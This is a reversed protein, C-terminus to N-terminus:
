YMSTKLVVLFIRDWTEMSNLCDFMMMASKRFDDINM